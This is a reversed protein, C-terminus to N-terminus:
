HTRRYSALMVTVDKPMGQPIMLIGEAPQATVDFVQADRQRYMYAALRLAAQQIVGDATASYGWTGAVSISQEHDEDDCTWYLGTSAKIRVRWKPSTNAPELLYQASTIATTDGNTLTALTLLPEDLHLVARDRPDVDAYPDYYRTATVAEFSWGCWADISKQARTLAASLLADDDTNAAAINLYARLEPLTAYAM